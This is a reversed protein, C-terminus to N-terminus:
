VYRKRFNAFDSELISKRAEDLMIETQIINHVTLYMWASTPENRLIHRLFAKSYNKCTFCTCNKDIPSSDNKFKNNKSFDIIFYKKNLRKIKKIVTESFDTDGLFLGIM